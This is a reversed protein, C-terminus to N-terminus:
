HPVPPIEKGVDRLFEEKSMPTGEGFIEWFEEASVHTSASSEVLNLIQVALVQVLREHRKARPILGPTFTSNGWSGQSRHRVTITGDKEVEADVVGEPREISVNKGNLLRTALAQLRAGETALILQYRAASAANHAHILAAGKPDPAEDSVRMTKCISPIGVRRGATPRPSM